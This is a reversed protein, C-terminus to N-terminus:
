IKTGASDGGRTGLLDGSRRAADSIAVFLSELMSRGLSQGGRSELFSLYQRLEGEDVDRYRYLFLLRVRARAAALFDPRASEAVDEIQGRSLRRSADLSPNVAVLLTKMLVLEMAVATASTGTARDLREVIDLRALSPPSAAIKSRFAELSSASPDDGSLRELRQLLPSRLWPLIENWALSSSRERFADAAIRYFRDADFGDRLAATFRGTPPDRPDHPDHGASDEGARHAAVVIDDTLRRFDLSRLAEDVPDPSTASTRDLDVLARPVSLLRGDPTTLVVLNGELEYGLVEMRSGDHFIVLEAYARPSLTLLAALAVLALAFPARTM